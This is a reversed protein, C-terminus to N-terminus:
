VIQIPQFNIYDASTLFYRIGNKEQPFTFEPKLSHLHGFICAHINYKELLMSVPSDHAYADIPPYHTMVIKYEAKPNLAELSLHLRHIEREYIQHDEHTSEKQPQKSLKNPIIHTFESFDFHPSDWLRTGGISINEYNFADNQIIHLSPPLLKKIKSKSSWWYDHNGKILVKKGPRAHIWELDPLAQVDKMAWSIDGAILVLDEQVILRDWNLAMKQQYNDWISGFVSMDKDPCSISLHLDSLAWIRM